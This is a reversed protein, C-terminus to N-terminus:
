EKLECEAGNKAVDNANKFMFEYILDDVIKHLDQYEAIAAEIRAYSYTVIEFGPAGKGMDRKMVEVTNEQWLWIGHVLRNRTVNIAELRTSLPEFSPYGVALARVAKVLQDGSMAWGRPSEDRNSATRSHLVVAEGLADDLWAAHYVFRGLLLAVNDPVAMYGQAYESM